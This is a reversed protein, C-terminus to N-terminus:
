GTPTPPSPAARIPLPPWLGICGVQFLDDRTYSGVSSHGKLKDGLVKYVLGLNEEVMAQQEKTLKM